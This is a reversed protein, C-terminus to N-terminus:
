TFMRLQLMVESFYEVLYSPQTNILVFVLLLGCCAKLGMLEFSLNVRGISRSLSVICIDLLLTAGFVPLALSFGVSFSSSSILLCLEFWRKDIDFLYDVAFVKFLDNQILDLGGLPLILLLIFMEALGELLSSRAALNGLAQEAFQVGRSVDSMRGAFPLCELALAFPVGFCVGKVVQLIAALLLGADSDYSVSSEWSTMAISFASALTVLVPMKLIKWAWRFCFFFSIWAIFHLFFSLFLAKMENLKLYLLISLPM